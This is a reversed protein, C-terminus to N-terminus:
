KVGGTKFPPYTKPTPGVPVIPRVALDLFQCIIAERRFNRSSDGHHSLYGTNGLTPVFRIDRERPM